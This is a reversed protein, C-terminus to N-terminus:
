RWLRPDYLPDVTKEVVVNPFRPHGANIVFNREIPAGAVSPVDLCLSAGTTAWSSAMEQSVSYDDLDDWGPTYPPNLVEIGADDPVDLLAAVHNVPPVRPHTARALLELLGGAFSTSAYLVAHGRQNWRGGYISAGTADLAGYRRNHFRWVRL